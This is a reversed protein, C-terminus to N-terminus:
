PRGTPHHGTPPGSHGKESGPASTPVHDAAPTQAATERGHNPKTRARAAIEQGDVGGDRADEAVSAGFSAAPPLTTPEDTAPEESEDGTPEDAKPAVPASEDTADATTPPVDQPVTTDPAPEVEAPHDTAHEAAAPLVVAVGAGAISTAAIGLGLAAKASLGALLETILM